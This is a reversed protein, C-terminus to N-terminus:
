ITSFRKTGPVNPLNNVHGSTFVPVFITVASKKVMSFPAM